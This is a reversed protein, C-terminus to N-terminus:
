DRAAGFLIRTALKVREKISEVTNGRGILTAYSKSASDEISDNLRRQAAKGDVVRQRRSRLSYAVTLADYLPRSVRGDPLKFPNNPFLNDLAELCEIYEEANAEVTAKDDGEHRLMCADLISRLSGKLDQEITERIAFYRLVLECDAMSRYLSNRVLAAPPATEEDDTAAPIGWLKTFTANRSTARLMKNFDGPYLANRLEQPNLKIGGTNLRRFLVMRIDIQDSKALERTEALLVIATITRRLLGRQLTSSLQKFKKGHLEKWFELGRLSFDNALFDIIAEIRQRGDMIEYKNYENEFLFIPPIPINMLLSEILQSRKKADWRSRRQYDPARNIYSSDFLKPQLTNLPVDMSSRVVKLQFEAYREEPTRGSAINTIDEEEDQEFWEEVQEETVANQRASKRGVRKATM